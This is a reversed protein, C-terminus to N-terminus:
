YLQYGNPNIGYEYSKLLAINATEIENFVSESFSDAPIIPSYWPKGSFYDRLEQSQFIYGRRAYIENRAYCLNRLSMGSVDADTLYRIASDYFIYDSESVTTAAQAPFTRIKSYSYGPQDTTYGGQAQEQAQLLDANQAEEFNLMSDSFSSADVTGWYWNKANFYDSLETSSFIYGHRAYIENRAYCLEQLTLQSIESSTLVRQASDPFIYSVPDVTFSDALSETATQSKDINQSGDGSQAYPALADFSYGPQDLVYEGQSQEISLLTQVNATEYANLLSDSFQDPAYIGHYWYQSDFYQQLEQSQFKKGARAYIENRAYCLAQSPWGAVRDATIYQYSSDPLLYGSPAADARRCGLCLILVLLLAAGAAIHYFSRQGRM